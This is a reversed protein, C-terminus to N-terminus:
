LDAMLESGKFSPLTPCAQQTVERRGAQVLPSRSAAEHVRRKTTQPADQLTSPPGPYDYIVLGSSYTTLARFYLQDPEIQILVVTMNQIYSDQVELCHLFRVLVGGTKCLTKM